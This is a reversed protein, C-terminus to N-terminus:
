KRYEEPNVVNAPHGDLFRRVNRCASLTADRLTKPTFGGIHPTLVANEPIPYKLEPEGWWVDTLYYKEPNEKLYTQMDERKVVDARAVNIIYKGRFSGLLSSDVLDRTSNSLPTSILVVDSSSFIEKPSKAVSDLFEDQKLSRSFGITRMDFAKAIRASQRGIGGYGLIGFTLGELTGIGEREFKGERTKRSLAGIKKVHELLLAFVHEALVNSYAGANSCFTVKENLSSLDFHDVGASASQLLVTNENVKFNRFSIVIEGSGTRDVSAELGTIRSCEQLTEDDVDYNVSIKM